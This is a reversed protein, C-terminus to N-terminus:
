KEGFHGVHSLPFIPTSRILLLPLLQPPQAPLLLPPSSEFDFTPLMTQKARSWRAHAPNSIRCPPIVILSALNFARDCNGRGVLMESNVDNMPRTSCSAPNEDSTAAAFSRGRRLVRFGYIHVSSWLCANSATSKAKIERGTTTWKSGYHSVIMWTSADRLFSIPYANNCHFPSPQRSTSAFEEHHESTSNRYAMISRSNAAISHAIQDTKGEYSLESPRDDLQRQLRLCICRPRWWFDWFVATFVAGKAMNM